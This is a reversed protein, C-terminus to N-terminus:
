LLYKDAKFLYIYNNLQQSVIIVDRYIDTRKLLCTYNNLQQSVNIFLEIFIDM